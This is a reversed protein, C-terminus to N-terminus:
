MQAEALRYVILSGDRQQKDQSTSPVAPGDAEVPAREGNDRLDYTGVVFLQRNSPSFEICCPPKDLFLTQLSEIVMPEAMQQNCRDRQECQSKHHWLFVAQFQRMRGYSATNNPSIAPRDPSSGPARWGVSAKM